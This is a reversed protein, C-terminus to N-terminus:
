NNVKIPWEVCEILKQKTEHQGGIDTWKTKPVEIFVERIASPKVKSLSSIFDDFSVDVGTSASNDRAKILASLFAEKCLLCLDAGVFGHCSDAIWGLEEQTILSNPYSKMLASLISLRDDRNPPPIEIERDFRGSRRVAPDLSNVANTAGIFLIPSATSSSLCGDMLTLLLTTLRISAASSHSDRKPCLSDIEDMFIVSPAMKQASEFVEQLKLEAEGFAASSFDSASLAFVPLNHKATLHRIMLTKGTGSPGYLLVGHSEKMLSTSKSSNASSMLVRKIVADLENVQVSLGGFEFGKAKFQANKSQVIKTTEPCYKVVDAEFDGEDLCKICFDLKKGDDELLLFQWSPAAASLFRNCDLWKLILHRQDTNLVASPDKLEIQLSKAITFPSSSATLRVINCKDSSVTKLWEFPNEAGTGIGLFHLVKVYGFSLNSSQPISVSPWCEFVNPVVFNDLKIRLLTGAKLQLTTMDKYNLLLRFSEKFPSFASFEEVASIIKFPKKNIALFPFNTSVSLRQLDNVLDDSMRAEVLCVRAAKM